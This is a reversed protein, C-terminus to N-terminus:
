PMFLFGEGYSLLTLSEGPICGRIKPVENELYHLGASPFAFFAYHSCPNSSM